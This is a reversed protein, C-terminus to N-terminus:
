YYSKLIGTLTKKGLFSALIGIKNKFRVKRNFLSQMRRSKIIEYCKSYVEEFDGEKRNAAFLGLMNFAASLRRDSAAKRLEPSRTAAWKEISDTVTLVDLRQLSFTHLLSSGNTRYYIVPRETYVIKSAKEFLRCSIELDEYLIGSTFKVDEFLKRRFLKGWCSVTVVTTQYLLLEILEAPESDYVKYDRNDIPIDRKTYAGCSIDADTTELLDNLFTLAGPLVKDDGDVFFIKDGVSERLGRNRAESPGGNPQSLVKIRSDALACQRAKDLTGDTSGDNVIIIELDKFDQSTVSKICDEIYNAVNYAPIIVSIM